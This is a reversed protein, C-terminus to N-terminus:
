KRRFKSCNDNSEGTFMAHMPTGFPPTSVAFAECRKSGSNRYSECNPCQHPRFPVERAFFAGSVKGSM